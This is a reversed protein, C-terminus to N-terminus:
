DHNHEQKPQQTGHSSHAAPHHEHAQHSQHSDHGGSDAQTLEDIAISKGLALELQSRAQWYSLLAATQEQQLQIERIKLDILTFPSALMFNVERQALEIRRAATLRAQQLQERHTHQLQALAKKIDRVAHLQADTIEAEAAVIQADVVALRAHGRDFLPLTIEAQPGVSKGGEADKELGAGITSDALGYEKRILAREQVLQQKHLKALQIDIRTQLAEDILKEQSFTENPLAPLQEPLQANQLLNLGLLYHLEAQTHVVQEQQHVLAREQEQAKDLHELYELESINGAKLLSEALQQKANAAQLLTQEIFLNQKAAIAAFYQQQLQYIGLQLSQTVKLQTAFWENSAQQERQARTVLAALSQTLGLDWQWLGSATSRLASLSLRPNSIVSAQLRAAEAEGLRALEVQLHPSNLLMLQTAARPTVPERLLQETRASRDKASPQQLDIEPHNEQLQLQAQRGASETVPQQTCGIFTVCPLAIALWRIYKRAIIKQPQVRSLNLLPILKM